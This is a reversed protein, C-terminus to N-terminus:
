QSIALIAAYMGQVVMAMRGYDLTEPTDYPTHYYPNRYFATDTIMVADYGAEWYNRHDSFDVGPLWKPANISYVPLPSATRMARKIRRVNSGKFLKGVVAIFNGETPYFIKLLSLPFTQSGPQNSFFGIMELSFMMRVAVGKEKLSVAHIASGMDKTRFYPMEELTFAVLEVRLPLADESLLYVLEILGAIGSANDDAGPIGPGATDYHAGIVIIEKTDPGLSAIVNRYTTGNVSYPQDSVQAGAQEFERGIYAAVRDLNEPHHADRPVLNESLMRVHAELRAPEVSILHEPKQNVWVPQTVIFWGATLLSLIGCLVLAILRFPRSHDFGAKM